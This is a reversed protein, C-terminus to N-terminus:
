SIRYISYLYFGKDGFEHISSSRYDIVFILCFTLFDLLIPCSCLVKIDSKANQVSNGFILKQLTCQVDAQTELCNQSKKKM